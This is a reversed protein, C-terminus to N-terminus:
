IDTLDGFRCGASQETPGDSSVPRDAMELLDLVELRRLNQFGRFRPESKLVNLKKMKPSSYLPFDDACDGLTDVKQNHGTIPVTRPETRVAQAVGSAEDDVM